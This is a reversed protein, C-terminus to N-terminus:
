LSQVIIYDIAQELDQDSCDFCIGRPPMAPQIGNITSELLAQKGQALRVAWAEKDGIKPAGSLGPTHCSFCYDNYIQKGPHQSGSGDEKGEGTSLEYGTGCGYFSLVALLGLLIRMRM